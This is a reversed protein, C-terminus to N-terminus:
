CGFQRRLRDSIRVDQGIEVMNMGAVALVPNAAAAHSDAVFLQQVAFPAVGVFQFSAPQAGLPNNAVKAFGHVNV